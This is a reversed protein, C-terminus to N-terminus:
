DQQGPRADKLELDLVLLMSSYIAMDRLSDEHGGAEFNAAYRSLKSMIWGLLAWRSHDQPTRLIVGDPFLAAPLGGFDRWMAGYELDKERQLAAAAELIDAPSLPDKPLATPFIGDTTGM